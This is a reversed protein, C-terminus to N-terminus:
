KNIGKMIPKNKKATVTMKTKDKYGEIKKDKEYKNCKISGDMKIRLEEQCEKKNKCNKCIKEIFSKFMTEKIM